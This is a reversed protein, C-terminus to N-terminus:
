EVATIQSTEKNNQYTKDLLTCDGSNADMTASILRVVAATWQTATHYLSEVAVKWTQLTSSLNQTSFWNLAVSASLAEHLKLSNWTSVLEFVILIIHATPKVYQIFM